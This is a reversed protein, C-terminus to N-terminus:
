MWIRVSFDDDDGQTADDNTDEMFPAKALMTTNSEVGANNNDGKLSMINDDMDKFSNGGIGMSEPPVKDNADSSMVVVKSETGKSTADTAMAAIEAYTKSAVADSVNGMSDKSLVDETESNHSVNNSTQSFINPSILNGIVGAAENSTAPTKTAEAAAATPPVKKNSPTPLQAGNRLNMGPMTSQSTISDTVIPHNNNSKMSLESRHCSSPKNNQRQAQQANYRHLYRMAREFENQPEQHSHSTMTQVPISVDSPSM